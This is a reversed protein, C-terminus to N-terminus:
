KNKNVKEKASQLKTLKTIVDAYIKDLQEPNAEYYRMSLEYQERSTNNKIFISDFADSVKTDEIPQTRRFFKIGAEVMHIDALVDVMQPHNLIEQSSNNKIHCGGFAMSITLSAMLLMFYNFKRFRGTIFKIM